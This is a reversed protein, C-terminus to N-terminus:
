TVIKAMSNCMVKANPRVGFIQTALEDRLYTERRLTSMELAEVEAGGLPVLDVPRGM